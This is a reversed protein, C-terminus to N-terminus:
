DASIGSAKIPAAWKEIQDKVFQALYDSSRPEPAVVNAGIERLRNRVEPTNLAALAADHLRRVIPEPTGKPFFLANWTYVDFGKLGQEEASPLNPFIPSRARTTVALAKLAGAEVQQVATPMIFCSYDTRGALLDILAPAGGRYPVHTAEIHLTANLLVCALHDASGSGASAFRVTTPNAKAYAALEVLNAAPLDRRAVVTLPTEAILVVPAFDTAANYAPNKYLSQSQAHTGVSGIVFQYGDPAAAAIRKSGITGGAGGVNEVIVQQGLFASLHPSLIRAVTDVAGGPAFPVVMTVPRAPWDQAQAPAAAALLALVVLPIRIGPM